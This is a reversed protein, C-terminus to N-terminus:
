AATPSRVVLKQWFPPDQNRQTLTRSHQTFHQNMHRDSGDWSKTNGMQSGMMWDNNIKWIVFLPYEDWYVWSATPWGLDRMPRGLVVCGCLVCVCGFWFHALKMQIVGQEADDKLSCSIKPKWKLNELGCAYLKQQCNSSIAICKNTYLPHCASQYVTTM